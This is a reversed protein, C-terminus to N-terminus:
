EGHRKEGKSKTAQKPATQLEEFGALKLADLQGPMLAEPAFKIVAGNFPSRLAILDSPTSDM